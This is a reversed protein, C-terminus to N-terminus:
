QGLSQRLDQGSQQALMRNSLSDLQITQQHVLAKLEKIEQKLAEVDQRNGASGHILETMRQQHKTLISVIPIMFIIIPILLPLIEEM